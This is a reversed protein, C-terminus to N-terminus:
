SNSGPPPPTFKVLLIVNDDSREYMRSVVTDFHVKLPSKEPYIEEDSVIAWYYAIFKDKVDVRIDFAEILGGVIIDVIPQSQRWWVSTATLDKPYWHRRLHNMEGVTKIAGFALLLDVYNLDKERVWYLGELFRKSTELNKSIESIQQLTFGQRLTIPPATNPDGEKLIRIPSASRSFEEM